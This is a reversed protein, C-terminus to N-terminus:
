RGKEGPVGGLDACPVGDGARGLKSVVDYACSRHGGKWLCDSTAGDKEDRSGDCLDLDSALPLARSKQKYRVSECRVLARSAAPCLAALSVVDPQRAYCGEQDLSEEARRTEAGRKGEEGGRRGGGRRGGCARPGRQPGSSTRGTRGEALM